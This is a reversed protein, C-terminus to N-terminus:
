YISYVCMLLIYLLPWICHSVHTIGASQSASALLDSSTLHELGIKGFHHFGMEVLFAFIPWVNHHMRIIDAICFASAFSHSSGPLQLYCHSSVTGSYELRKVTTSTQATRGPTGSRTRSPSAATLPPPERTSSM